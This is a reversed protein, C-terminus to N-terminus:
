GLSQILGRIYGYCFAFSQLGNPDNEAVPVHDPMLMALRVYWIRKANRYKITEILDSAIQDYALQNIGRRGCCITIFYCAKGPDAWLPVDHPLRKRDPPKM